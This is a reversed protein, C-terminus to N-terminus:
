SIFVVGHSIMNFIVLLSPPLAENISRPIMAPDAKVVIAMEIMRLNRNGNVM